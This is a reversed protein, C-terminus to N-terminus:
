VLRTDTQASTPDEPFGAPCVSYAAGSNEGGPIGLALGQLPSVRTFLSFSESMCVAEM